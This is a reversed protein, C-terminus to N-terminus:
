VIRLRLRPLSIEISLADITRTTEALRQWGLSGKLLGNSAPASAEFFGDRFRDAIEFKAKREFNRHDASTSEPKLLNAGV